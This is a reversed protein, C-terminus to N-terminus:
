PEILKGSAAKIAAKTRTVAGLKTRAKDTHFISRRKTLRLIQAIEAPTNGRAVWTTIVVLL